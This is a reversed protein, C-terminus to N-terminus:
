HAWSDHGEFKHYIWSVRERAVSSRAPGIYERYSAQVPTMIKTMIYVAMSLGFPLYQFQFYQKKGDEREYCAGLYTQNEKYIAFHFYANSLDYKL